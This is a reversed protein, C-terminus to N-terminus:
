LVHKGVRPSFKIKEDIAEQSAACLKSNNIESAHTKTLPQLGLETEQILHKCRIGRFNSEIMHGTM